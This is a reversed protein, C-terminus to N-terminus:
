FATLTQYLLRFKLRKKCWMEPLYYPCNKETDNDINEEGLCRLFDGFSQCDGNCYWKNHTSHKKDGEM